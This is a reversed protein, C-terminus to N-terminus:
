EVEVKRKLVKVYTIDDINISPEVTIIKVLDFNDTEINKVRGVIIGAPFRETLGTTTVTANLPIEHYDSIGELTYLNEEVNYNSILGYVYKGDGVAIKISIKNIINPNTLLTVTSNHKNVNSTYGILGDGIVVAMNNEIGNETGKDIVLTNLWYDASRHIVVANIEEYELISNEISLLERLEKNEKQLELIVNEKNQFSINEQKLSEYEKYIKDANLFINWKDAVYKFPTSSVDILTTVSDKIISEVITSQRNYKISYGTFVLMISIIIFVTINKIKKNKQYM